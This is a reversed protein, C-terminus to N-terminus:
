EVETSERDALGEILSNGTVFVVQCVLNTNLLAHLNKINATTNTSGSALDGLESSGVNSAQVVIVVLNLARLM